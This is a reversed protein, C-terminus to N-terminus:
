KRLRAKIIINEAMGPFIHGLKVLFLSIYKLGPTNIWRNLGKICIFDGTVRVIEFGNEGLFDQIERFGYEHKHKELVKRGFSNIPTTLILVSNSGMHKKIRSLAKRAEDKTLHEIISIFLIADFKQKLKFDLVNAKKYSVSKDKTLRRAHILAKRDYDIGTTKKAIDSIDSTIRGDGCGIDLISNVRRGIMDKFIDIRKQYIYESIGTFQWHYPKEYERSQMEEIDSM